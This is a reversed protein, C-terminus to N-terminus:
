ALCLGPFDTGPFCDLAILLLSGLGDLVSLYFRNGFRPIWESSRYLVLGNEMATVLQDAQAAADLGLIGPAVLMLVVVLALDLLSPQWRSLVPYMGSGSKESLWAVIGGVFVLNSILWALIMM